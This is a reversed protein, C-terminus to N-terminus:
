SLKVTSISDKNIYVTENNTNIVELIETGEAGFKSVNVFKGDNTAITVHRKNALHTAAQSNSKFSYQM